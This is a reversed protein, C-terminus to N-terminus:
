GMFPTKWEIDKWQIEVLCLLFTFMVLIALENLKVLSCVHWLASYNVPVMKSWRWVLISTPTAMIRLSLSLPLSLCLCVSLICSCGINEVKSLKQLLDWNGQTCIHAGIGSLGSLIHSLQLAHTECILSQSEFGISRIGIHEYKLVSSKSEHRATLFDSLLPSQLFLSIVDTIGDHSIDRVWCCLGDTYSLVTTGRYDEYRSTRVLRVVPFMFLTDCVFWLQRCSWGMGTLHTYPSMM